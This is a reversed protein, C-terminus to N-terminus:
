ISDAGQGESKTKCRIIRYTHDSHQTQPLSESENFLIDWDNPRTKSSRSSPRTVAWRKTLEGRYIFPEKTNRQYRFPLLRRTLSSGDRNLSHIFSPAHWTRHHARLHFAERHAPCQTLCQDQASPLTKTRYSWVAIDVPATILNTKKCKPTNWIYVVSLLLKLSLSGLTVSLFNLMGTIHQVVYLHGLRNAQSILAKSQNGGRTDKWCEAWAVLQNKM